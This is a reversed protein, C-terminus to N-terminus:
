GTDSIDLRPMNSLSSGVVSRNENLSDRLAMMAEDYEGHHVHYEGMRLLSAALQSRAQQFQAQHKQLENILVEYDQAKAKSGKSGKSSRSGATSHTAVSCNDSTQTEGRRPSLSLHPSLYSAFMNNM